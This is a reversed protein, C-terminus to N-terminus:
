EFLLNIKDESETIVNKIFNLAYKNPQNSWNKLYDQIKKSSTIPDSKLKLIVNDPIENIFGYKTKVAATLPSYAISKLLSGEIPASWLSPCITLKSNIVYEKLGSEWTCKDFMLNSYQISTQFFKEVINKDEPILFNYEKLIPVLELFYAIGKVKSLAGHYIIDPWVKQKSLKSINNNLNPDIEGTNMGIREISKYRKFHKKLLLGQNDNQTFFRIKPAYDFLKKLYYINKQKDYSIPKPICTHHCNDLNGLCDLCEGIDSRYNRSKICFFSNDMLYISIDNNKTLRFFLKYGLSQPHVIIIKKNKLYGIKFYFIVLRIRYTARFFIEEILDLINVENILQLRGKKKKKPKFLCKYNNKNADITLKKLIRGVGSNSEKIGSILFRDM